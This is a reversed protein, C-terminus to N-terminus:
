PAAAGLAQKSRIEEARESYDIAEKLLEQQRAPNTELNAQARLLLGKYVLADFYDDKLAIARDVAQMGSEVHEMRERNSLQEDRYAKGWYYTAITYYAEPNNPDQQARAHLAEMTKDFDGRKEYFSALTLYVDASNPRVERAKLLLQEAEEYQEQEEYIRSLHFYNTPDNPDLEIMRRVVPEAESPTNLKEPGYANVLHVMALQKIAPDDSLEAAKKYNEIAKDLYADNREEGRRAPRFLNDYSNGLYFYAATLGPDPRSMRELAQVAEEYKAAAGEYDQAQYLTNADKFAMRGKLMDVQGCGVLGVGLMAVFAVMAAQSSFTRM